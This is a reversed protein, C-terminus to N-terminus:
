NQQSLGHNSIWKKTTSRLNVTFTKGVIWVVPLLFSFSILLLCTGTLTVQFRSMGSFTQFLSYLLLGSMWVILYKLLEIRKRTSLGLKAFLYSLFPFLQLSHIAVGHPFKTVGANGYLSPDRGALIQRNGHWLVFFGIFCSLVLFGMGARYAIQIDETTNLFLFTRRTIELLIVTAAVILITMAYEISSNAFSDHNFHSAQGRWQQITILIVEWVLAISLSGTLWADYKGPRLRDFLFSLSLLTMGTSIGFLIPKRWSVPGEWNGGLFLWVFIHAAGLITLLIGSIGLTKVSISAPRLPLLDKIELQDTQCM